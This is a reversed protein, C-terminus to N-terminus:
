ERLAKTLAAGKLQGEKPTPASSLLSLDYGVGLAANERDYRAILDQLARYNRTAAEKSVLETAENMLIDIFPRLFAMRGQIIKFLLPTDSISLRLIQSPTLELAGFIEINTAGKSALELAQDHLKM